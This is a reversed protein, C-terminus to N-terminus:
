GLSCSDGGSCGGNSCGGCSRHDAGSGSSGGGSSGGDVCGGARRAGMWVVRRGLSGGGSRTGAWRTGVWAVGTRAIGRGSSETGRGLERDGAKLVWGFGRGSERDRCVLVRLSQGQSAKCSCFSDWTRPDKDTICNGEPARVVTIGNSSGSPSLSSIAQATAPGPRWRDVLLRLPSANQYFIGHLIFQPSSFGM